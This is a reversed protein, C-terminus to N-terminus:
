GFHRLFVLVAGRNQSAIDGLAGGGEMALHPLPDGPALEPALSGGAAAHALGAELASLVRSWDAEAAVFAGAAARYTADASAGLVAVTSQLAADDPLGAAQLAAKRLTIIAGLRKVQGALTDGAMGVFTGPHLLAPDRPAAALKIAAAMDVALQAVHPAAQAAQQETLQHPNEAARQGSSFRLFHAASTLSPSPETRLLAM